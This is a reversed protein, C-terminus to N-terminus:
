LCADWLASRHYGTIQPWLKHGCITCAIACYQLVGTSCYRLIAIVCYLLLPHWPCVRSVKKLIKFDCKTVDFLHDCKAVVEHKLDCITIKSSKIDCKAVDFGSSM